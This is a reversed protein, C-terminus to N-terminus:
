LYKNRTFWGIYFIMAHLIVNFRCTNLINKYVTLLPLDHCLCPAHVRLDHQFNPVAEAAARPAHQGVVAAAAAAPAAPAVDVAAKRKPGERLLAGLEHQYASELLALRGRQGDCWEM